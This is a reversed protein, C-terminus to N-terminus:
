QKWLVERGTLVLFSIAYCSVMLGIGVLFLSLSFKRDSLFQGFVLAGATINGMDMLKESFQARYERKAKM